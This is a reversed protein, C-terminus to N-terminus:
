REFVVKKVIRTHGQLGEVSSIGGYFMKPLEATSIEVMTMIILDSHNRM